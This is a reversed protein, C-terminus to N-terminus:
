KTCFLCSGDIPFGAIAAGHVDDVIGNKDDDIGNNPIEGPNKWMVDVLDPHNYDVGSDIVAVVVSPGNPNGGQADSKYEEWGEQWNIDAENDLKQLAWQKDFRPDNPAPSTEVNDMEAVGDDEIHIINAINLMESSMLMMASLRSSKHRTSKYRLVFVGINKLHEVDCQCSEKVHTELAKIDDVESKVYSLISNKAADEQFKRKKM